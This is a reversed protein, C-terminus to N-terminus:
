LVYGDSVDADHDINDNINSADDDSGDMDLNNEDEDFDEGDSPHDNEVWRILEDM